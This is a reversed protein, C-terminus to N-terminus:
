ALLDVHSVYASVQLGSGRVDEHHLVFLNRLRKWVLLTMKVEQVVRGVVHCYM